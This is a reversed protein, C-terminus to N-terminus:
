PPLASGEEAKGADPVEVVQVQESAAGDGNQAEHTRPVEEVREASESNGPTGGLTRALRSATSSRAKGLAKSGDHILRAIEVAARAESSGMPAALLRDLVSTQFAVVGKETTLDYAKTTRKLAAAEIGKARSIERLAKLDPSHFYCWESRRMPVSSCVEGSALRGKCARARIPSTSADM